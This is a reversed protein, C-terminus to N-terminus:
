VSSRIGLRFDFERVFSLPFLGLELAPKSVHMLSAMDCNLLEDQFKGSECHVRPSPTQM